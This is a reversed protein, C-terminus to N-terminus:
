RNIAREYVNITNKVTNEWTYHRLQLKGKKRLDFAFTSNSLFQDLSDYISDIDRPNFYLAADGAIEPFCSTNSLVLPCGFTFAELIPLGFGEYLSPFVLCLANKYFWGLEEDSVDKFLFVKSSLSYMSVLTQEEKNFEQGICVLNLEPYKCSLLKFSELFRNFNKYFGRSGVFLLFDTILKRPPITPKEHSMNCGHYVVDIKSPPVDVFKLIDKKTNASIAIIREAKEILLHKNKIIPNDPFFQEDIMDHITIIFPIKCLDKKLYYLDYFTPHFIDYHDKKLQSCTYYENIKKTWNNLIKSKSLYSYVVNEKSQHLYYNNSFVISLSSSVGRKKLHQMLEYHYRSIGGIQQYYFIQHDFLVRM